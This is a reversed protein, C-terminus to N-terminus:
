EIIIIPSPDSEESVSGEGHQNVGYVRLKHQPPGVEVLVSPDSVADLVTWTSWVNDVLYSIEVVYLVADPYPEEWSYVYQYKTPASLPSAKLGMTALVASLIVVQTLSPLQLLSDTLAAAEM